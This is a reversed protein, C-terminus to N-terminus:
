FQNIVGEAQAFDTIEVVGELVQDSGGADEWGAVNLWIAKCGLQRAPAIDKSYSDGIVVCAEANLGLANVGLQYIQPDPKRVGVVASEVVTQFYGLIGFDELVSQINGYFNSVMVLPYNASLAALVPKANEVTTRAFENCEHAIADIASVDIDHGSEQLFRFQENLKLSLVDYFVHQPQVLPKIALAREGYKYAQSFADRDVNVRNHQYAEWLVHAWHLGNTDITGGYDLLIGNIM